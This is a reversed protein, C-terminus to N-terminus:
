RQPKHLRQLTSGQFWFLEKTSSNHFFQGNHWWMATVWTKHSKRFRTTEERTTQWHVLHSVYLENGVHQSGEGDSRLLTIASRRPSPRGFSVNLVSQATFHTLTHGGSPKLTGKKLQEAVPFVPRGSQAFIDTVKEAIM